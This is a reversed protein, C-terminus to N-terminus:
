NDELSSLLGKLKNIDFDNKFLNMLISLKLLKEERKNIDRLFITKNDRM